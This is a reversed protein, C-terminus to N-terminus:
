NGPPYYELWSHQNVLLLLAQLRANVLMLHKNPPSMTPIIDYFGMRFGPDRKKQGLARRGTVDGVEAMRASDRPPLKSQIKTPHRPSRAYLKTFCPVGWGLVINKSRVGFQPKTLPFGRIEPFRPQHFIIQTTTESMKKNEGRDKPFIFGNQSM